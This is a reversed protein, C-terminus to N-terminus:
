SYIHKIAHELRMRICKMRVNWVATYHCKIKLKFCILKILIPLTHIKLNRPSPFCWVFYSDTIDILSFRCSILIEFSYLWNMTLEIISCHFCLIFFIIEIRIAIWSFLLWWVMVSECKKYYKKVIIILSAHKLDSFISM